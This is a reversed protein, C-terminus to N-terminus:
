KPVPLGKAQCLRTICNLVEKQRRKGETTVRDTQKNMLEFGAKIFPEAEEFKDLGLLAGGLLLQASATRWHDVSKARRLLLCERALPEAEAFRDQELLLLALNELTNAVLPHQNGLAKRRGALAEGFATEAEALRKQDWYV